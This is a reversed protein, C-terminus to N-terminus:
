DERAGYLTWFNEEPVPEGPHDRFFPRLVTTTHHHYHIHCVALRSDLILFRTHSTIEVRNDFSFAEWPWLCDLVSLFHYHRPFSALYPWQVPLSVHGLSYHCKQHSQVAKLTKEFPIKHLQAATSLIEVSVTCWMTWRHYSLRMNKSVLNYVTDVTTTKLKNGLATNYMFQYESTVHLLHLSRQYKFTLLPPSGKYREVKKVFRKWRLSGALRPVLAVSNIVPGNRRLM